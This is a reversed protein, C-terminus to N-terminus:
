TAALAAEEVRSSARPAETSTSLVGVSYVDVDPAIEHYSLVPLTPFSAETLRRLALRVQPACLLAARQQRSLVSKVMTELRKLLTQTQDPPLAWSNGGERMAQVVTHELAPDLSVVNLKRDPGVFNDSIARSLGARVYETLLDVDKVQPAYDVLVELIGALDRVPVRERLLNQLVRHVTGLSVIEPIADKVVAPSEKKVEEILTQADQRTLIEAANGKIMETLHTALVVSPAVVTLGLDEAKQKAAGTVWKAKLGFAPERTDVGDLRGLAEEDGMALHYGMHLGGQAVRHGKVRIEYRDPRLRIDDRVRIRPVLLGIEAALQRRMAKVRDLFDSGGEADMLPILGYGIAVELRDVRLFEEPAEEPQLAPPPPPVAEAARRRRVHGIRAIALFGGSLLLLPVTPIGPILGIAILAAAVITLPKSKGFLQQEIESGLQADSATRSVVIGASTSIILAPIQSILGDGITLRTYTRLAEGPDMGMQLIGVAFGALINVLTIVIGAIADGRVFKAAGDMAGYFNAERSLEERRHIAEKENILGANLDADISMQKGPMADLAFRAGVEANRETGRVVVLYQIAVLIVFIVFGVVYNDKVVFSGFASIVEGAYAQGLILRTSAVNLSLRFLTVVLMLSPFVSLQLPVRVYLANVLVVLSFSINFTLLLDMLFTPMPVIMVGLIGIVGVALM